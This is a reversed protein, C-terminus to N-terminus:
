HFVEKILRDIYNEFTFKESWRIGKELVSNNVQINEIGCSDLINWEIGARSESLFQALSSVSSTIPICGFALAESVVKPFGESAMSPLLLFHSQKYYEHIEERSCNGSFTIKKDIESALNKYRIYDKGTGIFTLSQIINNDIRKFWDLIVGVGKEEEVRGVFILKFPPVHEKTKLIESSTLIEANYLSPNQFSICHKPQNPWNGNITVKCKIWNRRLMYRQLRFGLKPKPDGWNNAYKVWFTFNRKRLTFYPILFLGIGMPVRLQVHTAGVLGREVQLLVKPILFLISLKKWLSKGGFMPIPFYKINGNLYKRYSAPVSYDSELCGIHAIEGFYNSLFNVEEVTPGWGFPVGNILRHETHSIIVLKNGIM